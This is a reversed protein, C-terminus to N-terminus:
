VNSLVEVHTSTGITAVLLKRWASCVNTSLCLTIAGEIQTYTKISLGNTELTFPQLMDADIVSVTVGLYTHSLDSMLRDLLDMSLQGTADLLLRRSVTVSILKPM